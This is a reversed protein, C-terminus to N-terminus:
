PECVGETYSEIKVTDGQENFHVWIGDKAGRNYNGKREINGNKYYYVYEGQEINDIWHTIQKLNGNPYYYKTVGDNKDNKFELYVEIKKNGYYSIHLSDLHNKDYYDIMITDGYGDLCMQIGDPRGYKLNKIVTIYGKMAKEYNKTQKFEGETYYYYTTDNLEKEAIIHKQMALRKDTTIIPAETLYEYYTGNYFVCGNLVACTLALLSLLSSKNSLKKQKIHKLQKTEM